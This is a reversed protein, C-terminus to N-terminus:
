KSVIAVVSDFAKPSRRKDTEELTCDCNNAPGGGECELLPNPYGRPHVGLEQWENASMVIGDLQECTSCGHETQGKRWVMNGGREAVILQAAEKYAVDWQRAWAQARALLTEIPTGDVKADIIDRYFQDVHEYQALIMGELAGALYGPLDGDGDEDQWAQRFAQTLQGSILNAMIDIFEGGLQDNYVHTVLREIQQLFYDQTKYPEPTAVVWRARGKLHPVIAPYRRVIARIASPLLNSYMVNRGDYVM